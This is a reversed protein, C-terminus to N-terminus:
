KGLFLQSKPYPEANEVLRNKKLCDLFAAYVVEFPNLLIHDDPSSLKLSANNFNTKIASSNSNPKSPKYSIKIDQEKKDKFNISKNVNYDINENFFEKESELFPISYSILLEEVWDNQYKRNDFIISKNSDYKQALNKLANDLLNLSGLLQKLLYILVLFEFDAASINGKGKVTFSYNPLGYFSLHTFSRIKLVGVEILNIAVFEFANYFNSNFPELHYINYYQRPVGFYKEYVIDYLMEQLYLRNNFHFIETSYFKDIYGSFEVDQGYRNQFIKHINNIDCVFILKDIGFKNVSYDNNYHASFINFLRFMHEPDLRDLDDIILIFPKKPEKEKIREIFDKILITFEDREYISGKEKYFRNLYEEFRDKDNEKVGEKFNIYDDTTQKLIDIFEVAGESGPAIAKIFSKTLRYFDLKTKVFSQVIWLIPFDNKSLKLEEAFNELLQTVIDYKILEFIDQNSAISYNVPNLKLLFYEDKNADFYEQLFTSKGTGFPASFLIRNNIPEDLHEQFSKVIKNHDIWNTKNEAM